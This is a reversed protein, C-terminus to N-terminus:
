RKQALVLVGVVVMLVFGVALSPFSGPLKKGSRKATRAIACYTHFEGGNLPATRCSPPRSAAPKDIFRQENTTTAITQRGVDICWHPCALVNGKAAAADHKTHLRM